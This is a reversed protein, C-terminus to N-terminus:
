QSTTACSCTRRSARYRCSTVRLWEHLHHEVLLHVQNSSIEGSGSPSAGGSGVIDTDDFFAKASQSKVIGGPGVGNNHLGPASDPVHDSTHPDRPLAECPSQPAACHGHERFVRVVVGGSLVSPATGNCCVFTCLLRPHWRGNAKKM